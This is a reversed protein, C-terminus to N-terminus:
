QCLSPQRTQRDIKLAMMGIAEQYDDTIHVWYQVGELCIVGFELNNITPIDGFHETNQKKGCASLAVMMALVIILKKM